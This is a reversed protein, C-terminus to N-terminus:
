VEEHLFLNLAFEVDNSGNNKYIVRIILDKLIKAPYLTISDASKVYWNRGFHSVVGAISHVVQFDVTDGINFNSAIYDVGNILKDL